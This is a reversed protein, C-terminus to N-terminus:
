FLYKSFLMNKENKPNVIKVPWLGQMAVYNQLSKLCHKYLWRGERKSKLYIRSSKTEYGFCPLIYDRMTLSWCNWLSRGMSGGPYQGPGEPLKSASGQGKLRSGKATKIQFRQIQLLNSDYKLILLDEYKETYELQDWDLSIQFEYKNKWYYQLVYKLNAM